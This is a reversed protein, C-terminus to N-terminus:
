GHSGEGPGVLARSHGETLILGPHRWAMKSGGVIV